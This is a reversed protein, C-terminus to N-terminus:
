IVNLKQKTSEQTKVYVGDSNKLIIQEHENTKNKLSVRFQEDKAYSVNVDYKYTNENNNIELLGEIYYSDTKEIKKTLTVVIDKSDKGFCGTFLFIGIFIFSLFKKKGM